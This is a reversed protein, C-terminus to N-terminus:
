KLMGSMIPLWISLQPILILLLTVLLMSVLLKWSGRIVEGMSADAMKMTVFLCLGFPPTVMGIQNMMNAIIIFQYTNIDYTKLLPILLPSLIIVASGVNMFCGTVFFLVCLLLLLMYKSDIMGTILDLALEPVHMVTLYYLMVQATALLLSMTAASVCSPGLLAYLEKASMERYVFLEIIIVYFTSIIAAETPTALGSYISGLIIVPFMLAWFSDVTVKLREKWSVKPACPIKCRKAELFVVLSMALATIIGPVVGAIFQAGVSVQMAVAMTLLPISPPIMIGITSSCTIIGVCLLKPYGAARLKPYMLAGIAVATAIASGTIAGFFTSAVITAIGLGGPIHGLYANIVDLLKESTKGKAALDGSIIFFPVALMIFSNIGGVMQQAIMMPALGEALIGIGASWLVVYAVPVGILLFLFFLGFVLGVM